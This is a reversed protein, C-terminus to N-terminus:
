IPPLLIANRQKADGGESICEVQLM